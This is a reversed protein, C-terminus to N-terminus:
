PLRWLQNTGANCTWIQLAMGSGGWDPDDLCRGSRPNLLEGDSQPLWIQAGTGDCHYLDVPTGAATGGGSVDLCKGEVKLTHDAEVRWQQADSGICTYMEITNGDGTRNDYNDLCLGDYGTIQGIAEYPLDIRSSTGTPAAAFAAAAARGGAPRTVFADAGYAAGACLAALAAALAVRRPRLVARLRSRPPDESREWVFGPRRRGDRTMM